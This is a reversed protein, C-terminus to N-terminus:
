SQFAATRKRERGSVRRGPSPASVVVTVPVTAVDTEAALVDWSSVLQQLQRLLVDDRDTHGTALQTELIKLQSDYLKPKPTTKATKPKPNVAADPLTIKPQLCWTPPIVPYEPRIMVMCVLTTTNRQITARYYSRPRERGNGDRFGGDPSPAVAAVTVPVTAVDTEAALVDWSSVLQQLQRLLVDDRDTHGTCLQTELIKLESDYLKPKSVTAQKAANTKPKPNVAAIPLALTPQLRWTPPIVPYEPRIMVLCILTTTNRQITARYYRGHDDDATNPDTSLRTFQDTIEKTLDKHVLKKWGVLRTGTGQLKQDDWLLTQSGKANSALLTIAAGFGGARFSGTGQYEPRIMVLCILTTTNRQITARYYRGHDDNATNPDTSLRTFQDTIEKTLDKHVLKKWGVLRTTGGQPKQDNTAWLLTQVGKSNSALLTLQLVLDELVFHGRARRTLQEMVRRTSPELREQRAGDPLHCLGALWQVWVYPRAASSSHIGNVNVPSPGPQHHYAGPNPTSGGNDQPFLNVLLQPQNVAEATVIGWAPRCRFRISTEWMSASASTDPTDGQTQGRVTLVVEQEESGTNKKEVRVSANGNDADNGFADIHGELQCCLVYLPRCLGAVERFRQRRASTVGMMRNGKGGGADEQGFQTQLPLTADEIAQLQTPLTQLFTNQKQFSQSALRQLSLQQSLKQSSQKRSEIQATLSDLIAQHQPRTKSALASANSSATAASASTLTSLFKAITAERGSDSEVPLDAPLEGLAMCELERLDGDGIRRCSGIERLLHAREYALNQLQLRGSELNSRKLTLDAALHQQLTVCANRQSQKLSIFHQSSINLLENITQKSTPSTSTTDTVSEAITDITELLLSMSDMHQRVHCELTDSASHIPATDVDVDMLPLENVVPKEQAKVPTIAAKKTSIAKTLSPKVKSKTKSAAAAAAARTSKAAAM